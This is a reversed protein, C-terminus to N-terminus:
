RCRRLSSRAVAVAEALGLGAGRRAAATARPGAPGDLLAAAGAVGLPSPKGAALLGHHLLLADEDAGLRVLLRVIYRLNLWQQTSDGVRDWHDIVELLARAAAAPERHVARTAAAEMLAIGRWWFNRVATALAVADDFLELARDPESKKLVLGLAYRAMSRATPNGTSDAVAVCEHAAALGGAPDRQVAHCVATYYLTWVLRIPDADRRAREAEARYYALAAAAHNEYLLVDALVDGPYAIRGTGRGPRHGAARAALARAHEFAGRNWAGRAASGVAAVFLPHEPGALELAREAWDASEYGVRLYGLEPLSTVLRLALGADGRAAAHEFASRFNDYDPLTREIWAREDPGQLEAAAREALATFYEAHRDAGREVDGTEALLERGRARLTELVVYRSRGPGSQVTVMSKDVLRTLLDLTDDETSAPEACVGHVAALDASGAFASLRTFLLQEFASLLRFSWDITAALSQQRAPATRAGGDLLRGRHLRRAIEPASMARVRAAALEIGLPLGDLRRCIEAIAPLDAPEPRFDPRHARARLVFLEGAQDGPLPSIPRLREGEVGLPERSTALVVVDPCHQTLQAVLRAAGELVHECNDLVLLLTRPRLYSVVTQEINLGHRQQVQLAAAVADAVPGGPSLPALECWWVGDPFRDRDRRAVELALRSKGVGGVGTLTIPGADRLAAAVADIEEDRGVLGSARRPLNTGPRTALLAPAHGLIQRYLEQAPPSPAVALEVDLAHRLEHYAALADAQRGAAYRARMLRTVTQERLPFRQVLQEAATAAEGPRGLVLLADVREEAAALWLEDLRVAEARAFELDAFEALVEGRWRGLATDLRALAQQHDDGAAAVRAAEVDREFAAADLADDPVALLYGPAQYRLREADAGLAARLRSVYARLANVAGRPPQGAWVADVLRDDSVVTGRHVLLLALLARPKPGGVNVVGDDAEVTLPGLIHFRM